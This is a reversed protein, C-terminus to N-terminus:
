WTRCPLTIRSRLPSRDVPESYFHLYAGIEYRRDGVSQKFMSRERHIYGVGLSPRRLFGRNEALRTLVNFRGKADITDYSKERTREINGAFCFPCEHRGTKGLDGFVFYALDRFLIPHLKSLVLKGSNTNRVSEPNYWAPMLQGVGARNIDHKIGSKGETCAAM